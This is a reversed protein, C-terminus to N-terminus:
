CGAILGAFIDKQGQIYRGGFEVPIAFIKQLVFGLRFLRGGFQHFEIGPQHLAKWDDRDLVAHRFVVSPQFSSVSRRPSRTCSTPSSRNTVLVLIRWSPMSLLTALEIRILTLWIPVRVSVRSAM